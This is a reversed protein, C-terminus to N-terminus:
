WDHDKEYGLRILLDGAVEKFLRKHDETFHERWGGAKGKRFTPSKKPQIAKKIAELATERPTPISYGRSEIFDLLTALSGDADQILDEFRLCLVQPCSLWGLYREYHERVNPLHLLGPEDRGQIAATVREEM